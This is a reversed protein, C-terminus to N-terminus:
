IDVLNFKGNRFIKSCLFAVICCVCLALVTNNITRHRNGPEEVLGCNFSPWYMWLFVTGILSFVDSEKSTTENKEYKELKKHNTLILSATLGFYAGFTHILMSGGVDTVKIRTVQIAENLTYFILELFVLSSM